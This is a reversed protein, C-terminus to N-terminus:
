VFIGKFGGGLKRNPQEAWTAKAKVMCQQQEKRLQEQCRNSDAEGAKLAQNKLPNKSDHEPTAEHFRSKTCTPYNPHIVIPM